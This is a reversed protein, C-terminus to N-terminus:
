GPGPLVVPVVFRTLWDAEEAEDRGPQALLSFVVRVLWAARADEDASDPHDPGSRDPADPPRLAWRALDTLLPSGAALTGSAGASAPAVWARLVPDARVGRLAGQIAAVLRRRPDRQRAVDAAVVAGLRRAEREVFALRLADRDPFYRYVTPRSCGAEAAVAVLTVAEVGGRRACRGVADLIRDIQISPEARAEWVVTV